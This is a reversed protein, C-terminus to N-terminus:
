KVDGIVELSSRMTKKTMFEEFSNEFISYDKQIKQVAEESKKEKIKSSSNLLIQIYAAMSKKM